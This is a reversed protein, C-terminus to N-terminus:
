YNFTIKIIHSKNNKLEIDMRGDMLKVIEKAHRLDINSFDKNIKSPLNKINKSYDQKSQTKSNNNINKIMIRVKEKSESTFRETSIELSDSKKGSMIFTILINILIQRLRKNDINIDKIDLNNRNKISLGRRRALGSCIDVSRNITKNIDVKSEKDINVSGSSTQSIDLLDQTLQLIDSINDNFNKILAHIKKNSSLEELSKVDNAISFIPSRIDHCIAQFFENKSINESLAKKNIDALQKKMSEEKAFSQSIINLSDYIENLDKNSPKQMTVNFNRKSIQKAFESLNSVPRVIRLYLIKFLVFFLIALLFTMIINELILEIVEDKYHDKDYIAAVEILLSKSKTFTSTYSDGYLIGQKTLRKEVDGEELSLIKVKNNIDEAVPETIEQSSVLLNGEKYILFTLNDNNVTLNIKNIIKEVDLGFVLTGVYNSNRSYVGISVPVILRQSLKGYVAKGLFLEGRKFKTFRLYDRGSADLKSRLIGYTGDVSIRDKTDIWTYSNWSLASENGYSNRSLSSLLDNIKKYSTHSRSIRSAAYTLQYKIKNIEDKMIRKVTRAKEIMEREIKENKTAISTSTLISGAIILSFISIQYIGLFRKTLINPFEKKERITIM